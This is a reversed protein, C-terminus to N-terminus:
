IGNYKYHTANRCKSLIQLKYFDGNIGHIHENLRRDLNNTIGTYYTDDSCKILYVYYSFM